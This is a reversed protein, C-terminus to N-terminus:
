KNSRSDFLGRTISKTWYNKQDTIPIDGWMDWIMISSLGKSKAYDMKYYSSKYDDSDIYIPEAQKGDYYHIGLWFSQREPWLKDDGASHFGQAPFEADIPTLVFATSEPHVRKYYRGTIIQNYSYTIDGNITTFSRKAKSPDDPYLSTDYAFYKGAVSPLEVKSTLPNDKLVYARGYAAVGMGIKNFPVGDANLAKVASDTNFNNRENNAFTKPQADSFALPSNFNSYGAVKDAPFNPGHYDYSMLNISDVVKSLAAWYPRGFKASTDQLALPNASVAIKLKDDSLVGSAKNKTLEAKLEVLFKLYNDLDTKNLSASPVGQNPLTWNNGNPEWDVDVGAFKNNVGAYENADVQADALFKIISNIFKTRHKDDIATRLPTSLSWGGISLLVPKNKALIQAIVGYHGGHLSSVYDVWKDTSHLLYDQKGSNQKGSLCKNPEKDTAYNAEPGACDGIQAFAYIIEDVNCSLDKPTFNKHQTWNSYYGMIKPKNAPPPTLMDSPCKSAQISSYIPDSWASTTKCAYPGYGYNATKSGEKDHPDELFAYKFTIAGPAENAKYPNSFICQTDYSSHSGLKTNFYINYKGSNGLANTLDASKIIYSTGPALIINNLLDKHTDANEIIFKAAVKTSNVLTLDGTNGYPIQKQSNRQPQTCNGGVNHPNFCLYIADQGGIQYYGSDYKDVQDYIFRLSGTHSSTSADGAIFTRTFNLQGDLGTFYEFYHTGTKHGNHTNMKDLGEAKIFSYSMPGQQYVATYVMPGGKLYKSGTREQFLLQYKHDSNMISLNRVMFNQSDMMAEHNQTDAFAFLNKIYDVTIEGGARAACMAIQAKTHACEASNIDKCKSYQIDVQCRNYGEGFSYAMILYDLNFPMPAYALILRGIYQGFPLDPVLGSFWQFKIGGNGHAGATFGYSHPSFGTISQNNFCFIDGPQVTPSNYNSGSTGNLYFQHPISDGNIMCLNFKDYAAFATNVSIVGLCLFINKLKM